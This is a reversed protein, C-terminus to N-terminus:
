PRARRSRPHSAIRLQLRRHRRATPRARRGGHATWVSDVPGGAITRRAPPHPVRLTGRADSHWPSAQAGGGNSRFARPRRQVSRATLRVNPRVLSRAIMALTSKRCQRGCVSFARRLLPRRSSEWRRYLARGSPEGTRLFRSEPGSSPADGSDRPESARTRLLAPLCSRTQQGVHHPARARDCPNLCGSRRMSSPSRPRWRASM